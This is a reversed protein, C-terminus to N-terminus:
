KGNGIREDYEFELIDLLYEARVPEPINKVTKYVLCWTLNFNIPNFDIYAFSTKPLIIQSTIWHAVSHWNLLDHEYPQFIKLFTKVNILDIVLRAEPYKMLIIQVQACFDFKWIDLRKIKREM